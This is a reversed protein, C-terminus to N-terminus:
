RESEDSEGDLHNSEFEDFSDRSSKMWRNTTPPRCAMSVLSGSPNWRKAQVSSSERPRMSQRRIRKIPSLLMDRNELLSGYDSSSSSSSQHVCCANRPRTETLFVQPMINWEAWQLWWPPSLLTLHLADLQSPYMWSWCFSDDESDVGDDDDDDDDDDDHCQFAV